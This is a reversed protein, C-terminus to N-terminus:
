NTYIACRSLMSVDAQSSHKLLQAELIFGIAASRWSHPPDGTFLVAGVNEAAM